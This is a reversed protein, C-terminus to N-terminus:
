GELHYKDVLEEALEKNSENIAKCVNFSQPLSSLYNYASIARSVQNWIWIISETDKILASGLSRYEVGYPKLRFCGANGYLKRRETDDDRLVSPIGVYADLYRVIMLSTDINNDLYGIHLHTGASRITTISGDPRPNPLETYVNYDPSCGFERAQKSRLQSGPVIQSSACLIDYSKSQFKVWDRIYNKMYEISHVFDERTKCPPINFEALINDTQMAFGEPMDPAHFPEEKTGPIKGIASVVKKSKTNIIFLEPDAGLTFSNIKM